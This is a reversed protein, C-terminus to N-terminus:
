KSSGALMDRTVPVVGSHECVLGGALNSWQAMEALPLKAALCLAALSIVTDGAGSVDSIDRPHAPLIAAEQGDDYFVGKESLTVLTVQHNLKHRLEDSAKKLDELVPKVDHNLAEKLERLNPKFLTVDKYLFFNKKKPDVATIIGKERCGAIVERIVRETLVGKNYDELIVAQPPQDNLAKRVRGCLLNEDDTNLEETQEKDFRLMQQHRSLVRTKVTTRRNGSFVMGETGLGQHRMLAQLRRGDEDDGIVSCLLARAELSLINLAVNAAGGLRQDEKDVLVVPVPAEPSIRDAQGWLYVDMMVDGVVLVRLNEIQQFLQQPNM